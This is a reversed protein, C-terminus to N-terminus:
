RLSVSGGRIFVWSGSACARNSASSAAPSTSRRRFPPYGDGGSSGRKVVSSSGRAPYTRWAAPQRVQTARRDRQRECGCAPRIWLGTEIWRGHRALDCDRDNVVAATVIGAATLMIGGVWRILRTESLAMETRLEALGTKFQDSTVHGGQEGAQQVVQAIAAAQDPELGVSTLTRTSEIIDLM